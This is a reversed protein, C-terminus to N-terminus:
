PFLTLALPLLQFALSFSLLCLVCPLPLRLSSVFSALSKLTRHGLPSPLAIQGVQYVASLPPPSRLISTSALLGLVPKPWPQSPLNLRGLLRGWGPIWSKGARDGRSCGIGNEASCTWREEPGTSPDGSHLGWGGCGGEPFAPAHSGPIHGSWGWNWARPPAAPTPLNVPPTDGGQGQWASGAPGTGRHLLPSSTWPLHSTSPALLHSKSVPRVTPYPCGPGLQGAGIQFGFIKGWHGGLGRSNGRFDPWFKPAGPRERLCGCV